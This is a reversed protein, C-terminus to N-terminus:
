QDAIEQEDADQAIADDEEGADEIDYEDEVEVVKAKPAKKRRKKKKKEAMKADNKKMWDM